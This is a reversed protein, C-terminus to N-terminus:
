RTFTLYAGMLPDKMQNKKKDNLIYENFIYIM